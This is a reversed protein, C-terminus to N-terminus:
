VPSEPPRRRSPAGRRPPVARLRGRLAPGQLQRGIFVCRTRRSAEEEAGAIAYLGDAADFRLWDGGARIIGKARVIDGFAGRILDELFVALEGAHSVHGTQLSLQEPEERTAEAPSGTEEAPSPAGGDEEALLSQWWSLPRLSYHSALVPAATHRAIEAAARDLVAPDEHECKSLVIQGASRLQDAYIEPYSRMHAAMGPPSVVLIPRLVRIRQYSLRRLTAMVSSLRGVGSPEVILYDPDLGASIAVVTNAFSDKTTCCVCGEMFELVEPAGSAGRLAASDLDAAGYENELVVARIKTRRLLERIFTTKGAGLFGSVVLIKM